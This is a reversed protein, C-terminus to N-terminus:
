RGRQVYTYTIKSAGAEVTYIVYVTMLKPKAHGTVPLLYGVDNQESLKVM